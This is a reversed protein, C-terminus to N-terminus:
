GGRTCPELVKKEFDKVFMLCSDLENLSTKECLPPMVEFEYKKLIALPTASPSPTSNISTPSPSAHLSTLLSLATTTAATKPAPDPISEEAIRGLDQLIRPCATVVLAILTAANIIYRRRDTWSRRSSRVTLYAVVATIVAVEALMIGWTGSDRIGDLVFLPGILMWCLLRWYRGAQFLFWASRSKTKPAPQQQPTAETTTESPAPEPTAEPEPPAPPPVSPEFQKEAEESQRMEELLTDYEERKEPNGLVAFAEQIEVWTKSADERMRKSVGTPIHDPHYALAAQRYAAKIEKDDADEPVQLIDYYTSL